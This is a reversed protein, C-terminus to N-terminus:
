GAHTDIGQSEMYQLLGGVNTLTGAAEELDIYIGFENELSDILRLFSLSSMGLDAFSSTGALVVDLPLSGDSATVALEAVRNYLSNTQVSQDTM